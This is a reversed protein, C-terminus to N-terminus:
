CDSPVSQRRSVRFVDRAEVIVQQVRPSFTTFIGFSGHGSAGYKMFDVDKHAYERIVPRIEEQTLWLLPRGTGQEWADNIRRIFEKSLHPIWQGRFDASLPGDFGIINGALYIRSGIAQHANIMNRAKILAVRPGWTDFVTTLGAKLAIQAAELVIEYSRDESKILTELNYTPYLHVNADMLGPIVYKGRVDIKRTLKPIPIDRSRGVAVIRRDRILVVGENLPPRGTGDIITGGVVALTQTDAHASALSLLIVLPLAKYHGTIASM